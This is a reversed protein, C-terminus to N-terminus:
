PQLPCGSLHWVLNVHNNSPLLPAKPYFEMWSFPFPTVSFLLTPLPSFQTHSLSLCVSPPLTASSCMQTASDSRMVRVALSLRPSPLSLRSFLSVGLVSLGPHWFAASFLFALSFLSLCHVQTFLILSLCHSLSSFPLFIHWAFKSMRKHTPM